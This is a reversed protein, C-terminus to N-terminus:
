RVTRPVEVVSGQTVHVDKVLQQHVLHFVHGARITLVHQLRHDVGVHQSQQVDVLGLVIEHVLASVGLVLLFPDESTHNQLVVHGLGVGHLGQAGVHVIVALIAGLVVLVDIGTGDPHVVEDKLQLFDVSDQFVALGNGNERLHNVVLHLM